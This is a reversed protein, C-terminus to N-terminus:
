GPHCEPCVKGPCAGHSVREVDWSACAHHPHCGRAAASACDACPQPNRLHQMTRNTNHTTSKLAQPVDEPPPEEVVPPDLPAAAPALEVAAPELEAAVRTEDTPPLEPIASEDVVDSLACPLEPTAGAEVLELAGPDDDAIDSPDLEITGTDDPIVADDPRLASL